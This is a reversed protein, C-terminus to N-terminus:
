WGVVFMSESDSYQKTYLELKASYLSFTQKKIFM